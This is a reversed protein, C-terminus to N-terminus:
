ATSSRSSPQGSPRQSERRPHTPQKGDKEMFSDSPASVSRVAGQLVREAEERGSSASGSYKYDSIDHLLAGLEIVFLEQPDTIGELRAITRSNRVVREVHAWDHSADNGVLALRVAAEAVSWPSPSEDATSM